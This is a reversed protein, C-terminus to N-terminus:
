DTFKSFGSQRKKALSHAWRYDARCKVANAKLEQQSNSVIVDPQSAVVDTVRTLFEVSFQGTFSVLEWLVKSGLRRQMEAGWRSHMGNKVKTKNYQADRAQLQVQDPEANYELKCDQVFRHRELGPGDQMQFNMPLNERTLWAERKM